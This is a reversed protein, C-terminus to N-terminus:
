TLRSASANASVRQKRSLRCPAGASSCSCTLHKERTSSSRPSPSSRVGSAARSSSSISVAAWGLSCSRAPTPLCPLSRTTPSASLRGGSTRSVSATVRPRPTASASGETHRPSFRQCKTSLSAGTNEVDISRCREGAGPSRSTPSATRSKRVSSIFSTTASDSPM